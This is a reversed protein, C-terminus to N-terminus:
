RFLEMDWIGIGKDPRVRESEKVNRGYCCCCCCCYYYYYYYREFHQSYDLLCAETM